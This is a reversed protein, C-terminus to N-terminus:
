DWIDDRFEEEYIATGYEKRLEHILDDWDDEMEDRKKESKTNNRKEIIKEIEDNIEDIKDERYDIIREYRFMIDEFWKVFDDEDFHESVYNNDENTYIELLESYFYRGFSDANPVIKVNYNGYRTMVAKLMTGDNIPRDKHDYKKVLDIERIDGPGLNRIISIIDYVDCEKRYDVCNPM